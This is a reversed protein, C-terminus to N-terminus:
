DAGHRAEFERLERDLDDLSKGTSIVIVILDRRIEVRQVCLGAEKVEEVARTVSGRKFCARRKSTKREYESGTRANM